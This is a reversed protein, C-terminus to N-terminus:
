PKRESFLLFIGIIAFDVQLNKM